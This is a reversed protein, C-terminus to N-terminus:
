RRRRAGERVEQLGLVEAVEYRPPIAGPVPRLRVCSPFYGMRGHLEALLTVAIFNLAPPVILLPSTQWEAPTLGCADALATVQPVFDCAQDFQAPVEIVRAVPQGTLKEIDAVQEPRLPHTFNLILM